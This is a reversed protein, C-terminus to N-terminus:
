MLTYGAASLNDAGQSSVVADGIVMAKGAAGAPELFYTGTVDSDAAYFRHGNVHKAVVTYSSGAADVNAVLSVGNSIPIQIYQWGGGIGKAASGPGSLLKGAAGTAAAATQTSGFVNWDTFFVVQSKQMHVTDSIAAANHSRIRYVSYQPVAVAALVSIIAIVIVLEVLTFGDERSSDQEPFM